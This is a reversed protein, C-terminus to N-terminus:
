KDFRVFYLIVEGNPALPDVMSLKLEVGDKVVADQLNPAFDVFHLLGYGSGEPVETNLARALWEYGIRKENLFVIHVNHEVPVTAGPKWPKAPDAPTGGSLSRWVVAQGNKVILRKATARQRDFVGM